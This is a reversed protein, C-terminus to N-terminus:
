VDLYLSYNSKMNKNYLNLNYFSEKNKGLMGEYPSKADTLFPYSTFSNTIDKFNTNSRSEDFRSKFVKQIASYTVISNKATSRLKVSNTLGPLSDQTYSLNNKDTSPSSDIVWDNEDFDARFSDLVSSYSVPPLFSLSTSVLNQNLKHYIYKYNKINEYSDDISELLSDNNYYNFNLLNSYKPNTFFDSTYVMLPNLLEAELPKYM